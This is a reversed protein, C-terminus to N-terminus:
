PRGNMDDDRSPSVDKSLQGSLSRVYAAIQWVQDDEIKGEFSPMGNPRGEMITRYINQSSSGYIWKDDILPPGMGGGGNAHCGSCNYWQFLRKGESVAYANKEYENKVETVPTPEGPQLDTQRISTVAPAPPPNPEFQRQERKCSIFTLVLLAPVLVRVKQILRTM